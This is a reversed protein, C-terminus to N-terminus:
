KEFFHIKKKWRIIYLQSNYHFFPSTLLSLYLHPILSLLYSSLTLARYYILAAEKEAPAHEAHGNGEGKERRV